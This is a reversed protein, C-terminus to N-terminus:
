FHCNETDINSKQPTSRNSNIRPRQLVGVRDDIVFHLTHLFHQSFNVLLALLICIVYAYMINMFLFFIM